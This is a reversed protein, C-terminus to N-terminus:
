RAESVLHLNAVKRWPGRHKQRYVTLQVIQREDAERTEALAAVLAKSSAVSV